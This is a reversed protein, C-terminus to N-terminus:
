IALKFFINTPSNTNLSVEPECHLQGDPSVGWFLTLLLSSFMTWFGCSLREVLSLMVGDLQSVVPDKRLVLGSFGSMCPAASLCKYNGELM